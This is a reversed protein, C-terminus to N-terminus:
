ATRRYKPRYGNPSKNTTEALKKSLLVDRKQLESLDFELTKIRGTAQELKSRYFDKERILENVPTRTSQEM